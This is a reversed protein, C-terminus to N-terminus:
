ARGDSKNYYSHFAQPGLANMIALVRERTHPGPINIGGIWLTQVKDNWTMFLGPTLEIMVVYHGGRSLLWAETLSDDTPADLGLAAFIDYVRQRTQPGPIMVSELRLGEGDWALYIGPLTEIQLWDSKAYKTFGLGVLWATTIPTSDQVTNM